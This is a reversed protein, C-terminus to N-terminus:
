IHGEFVIQLLCLAEHENLLDILKSNVEGGVVNHVGRGGERFNVQFMGLSDLSMLNPGEGKIMLVPLMEKNEDYKIEAQFSGLIGIVEGTYTMLNVAAPQLTKKSREKIMRYTAQNIMSFTAGADYQMKFPVDDILVQM